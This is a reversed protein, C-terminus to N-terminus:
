KDMMAEIIIEKLEDHDVVDVQASVQLEISNYVYSGWKWLKVPLMEPINRKIM